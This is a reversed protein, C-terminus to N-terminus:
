GFPRAPKASALWQRLDVIEDVQAVVADKREREVPQHFRFGALEYCALWVEEVETVIERSSVLAPEDEEELDEGGWVVDEDGWLEQWSKNVVVRERTITQKHVGVLRALGEALAREIVKTKLAYLQEKQRKRTKALRHRGRKYEIQATDRRRKATRNVERLALAINEATLPLPQGARARPRPETQDFTYLWKAGGWYAAKAAPTLMADNRVRRGEKEWGTKTKLEPPIQNKSRYYPIVQLPSKRKM